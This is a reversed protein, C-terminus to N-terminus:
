AAGMRVGHASVQRAWRPDASMIRGTPLPSREHSPVLSRGAVAPHQKWETSPTRRQLRAMARRVSVSDRKVRGPIESQRLGQQLLEHVAADLEALTIRQPTTGVVTRWVAVEDVDLDGRRCTLCVTRGRKDTTTEHGEHRRAKREARYQRGNARRCVVCRGKGPKLHGRQCYDQPQNQPHNRNRGTTNQTHTGVTPTEGKM